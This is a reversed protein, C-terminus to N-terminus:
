EEEDIEAEIPPLDAVISFGDVHGDVKINAASAHRQTLGVIDSFTLTAASINKFDNTTCEGNNVLKQMAIISTESLTVIKQCLTPSYKNATEHITLATSPSVKEIERMTERNNVMDVVAQQLIPNLEVKDRIAFLVIKRVHGYEKAINEVPEGIALRDYVEDWPIPDDTGSISLTRKGKKVEKSTLPKLKHHEYYENPTM